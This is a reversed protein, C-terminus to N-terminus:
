MILTIEEMDSPAIFFLISTKAANDKAVIWVFQTHITHTM